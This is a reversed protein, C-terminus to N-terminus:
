RLTKGTQAEYATRLDWYRVMSRMTQQNDEGWRVKDDLYRNEAQLVDRKLIKAM